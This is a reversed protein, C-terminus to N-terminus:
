SCEEYRRRSSRHQLPPHRLTSSPRRLRGRAVLRSHLCLVPGSPSSSTAEKKDAAAALSVRVEKQGNESMASTSTSVKTKRSKKIGKPQKHKGIHPRASSGLTRSGQAAPPSDAGFAACPQISLPSSARRGPALLRSRLIVSSSPSVRLHHTFFRSFDPSFSGLMLTVLSTRGKICSLFMFEAIFRRECIFQRACEAALSM